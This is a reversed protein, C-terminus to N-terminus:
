KKVLSQLEKYLLMAAKDWSYEKSRVLGLEIMKSRLSPNNVVNKMQNAMDPFSYPDFYQAAEHCVEQM